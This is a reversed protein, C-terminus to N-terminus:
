RLTMRIRTYLVPYDVRCRFVRFEEPKWGVREMAYGLMEAYRPIMPTRAADIGDGLYEAKETLPLLDAERLEKSGDLRVAYVQVQPVRIKGIAKHVLIDGSYAELPIDVSKTLTVEWSHPPPVSDPAAWEGRTAEGWFYTVEDTLGLNDTVLEHSRYGQRSEHLRFQPLPQSCFDRLLGISEPGTERPDLPEPMQPAEPDGPSVVRWRHATTHLSVARRTRRLGIMGRILAQDLLGETASPHLIMTACGVRAQRGWLLSAGRFVARKHKFDSGGAAGDEGNGACFESVMTEFADRSGAHRAVSQEFREFAARAREISKPTVGHQAAAAFFQEMARRGPLLSALARPDRATAANFLSWSVKQSLNLLRKLQTARMVPPQLRELIDALAPRLEQLVADAESEFVPSAQPRPPQPPDAIYEM